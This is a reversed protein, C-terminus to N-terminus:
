THDKPYETDPDKSQTPEDVGGDSRLMRPEPEESHILQGNVEAGMAMELLRYYVTGTVRAQPALEVRENAYVDGQITGNLILVDVRVDGEVCGQESLTISSPEGELGNVNGVIKGDLHLGGRFEVDGSIRTDKGIVTSVKPAKFRRKAM